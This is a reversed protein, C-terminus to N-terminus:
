QFGGILSSLMREALELIPEAVQGPPGVVGSALDEVGLPNNKDWAEALKQKRDWEEQSVWLPKPVSSTTKLTIGDDTASETVNLSRSTPTGPVDMVWRMIRYGTRIDAWSMKQGRALKGGVRIVAALNQETAHVAKKATKQCNRAAKFQLRKLRGKVGGVQKKGSGWAQKAAGMRAEMWSARDYQGAGLQQQNERLMQIYKELKPISRDLREDEGEHLKAEALIGQVKQLYSQHREWRAKLEPSKLDPTDAKEEPAEEKRKWGQWKMSADHAERFIDLQSRRELLQSVVRQAARRHVPKQLAAWIRAARMAVPMAGSLEVVLMQLVQRAVIEIFKVIIDAVALEPAATKAMTGLIANLRDIFAPDSKFHAEAAKGELFLTGRSFSGASARLAALSSEQTGTFPMTTKVGWGRVTPYLADFVGGRWNNVIVTTPM